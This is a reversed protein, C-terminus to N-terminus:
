ENIFYKRSYVIWAWFIMAYLIIKFLYHHAFDAIAYNHYNLWALGLCRFSNAIFIGVVGVVIFAVQRKLTTPFCVIFGIYLVYLELGNCPDAIGISRAGRIYIASKPFNADRNDPKFTISPENLLHRYLWATSAATVETLQRDPVRAPFLVLHYLLKWVIFAILARIFFKKVQPPIQKLYNEQM